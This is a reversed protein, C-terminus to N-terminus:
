IQSILMGDSDYYQSIRKRPCITIYIYIQNLFKFLDFEKDYPNFRYFECRLKMFINSERIKDAEINNKCLHHPEDCEIALKYEPFFLDIRYNDVKYQPIMVHGDFTKLICSIIDTEISLCYKSIIDLNINKAFEICNNKRSTTLLKLLSKYPIYKLKQVGGNTNKNIYIKGMNRTISRISSINLIKGIDNACYLTYPPENNIIIDCEYKDKIKNALTIEEQYVNNNEM